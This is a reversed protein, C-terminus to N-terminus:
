PAVRAREILRTTLTSLLAEVGARARARASWEAVVTQVTPPLAAVKELAASLHGEELDRDVAAFALDDGLPNKLSKISVVGELAVILRDLWTQAAEQRMAARAPAALDRWQARLVVLPTAGSQALPELSTLTEFLKADAGITQLMLQREAEFPLGSLAVRQLQVYAIASAADISAATRGADVLQVSQDLKAQMAALAAALARIEEKLKEGEQSGLVQPKEEEVPMLKSVIPEPLARDVIPLASAVPSLSGRERQILAGACLAVLVVLVTILGRMMSSPKASVDKKETEMTDTM